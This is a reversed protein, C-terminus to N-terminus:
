RQWANKIHVCLVVGNKLKVTARSMTLLNSVGRAPGFKLTSANLEWKLGTTSVVLADGALPILSVTDGSTGSITTENTFVWATQYPDILCVDHALWAPHTLLLINAIQQDIRGGFPACIHIPLNARETAHILALELDTEDKEASVRRVDVGGAQLWTLAEDSVSDLDGVVLDPLRGITHLHNTGGDAAIVFDASNVQERLWDAVPMDGNAVILTTM